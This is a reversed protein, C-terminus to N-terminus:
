FNRMRPSRALAKGLRSRPGRAPTKGVLYKLAHFKEGLQANDKPLSEPM